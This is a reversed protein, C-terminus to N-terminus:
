LVDADYPSLSVDVGVDTAIRRLEAELGAPEDLEAEITLVYIPSADGVLRSSLNTINGGATAVAHSVRDLIGPKDSGYVTVVHTPVPLRARDDVELVSFTIGLPGCAPELAETLSAATADDPATFVLMVAFNGRLLSM